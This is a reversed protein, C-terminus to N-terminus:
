RGAGPREDSGSRLLERVPLWGTAMRGTVSGVHFRALSAAVGRVRGRDSADVQGGEIVVALRVLNVAAVVAQGPVSFDVDLVAVDEDPLPVGHVALCELLQEVGDIRSLWHQQARTPVAAIGAQPSALDHDIDALGNDPRTFMDISRFTLSPIPILLDTRTRGQGDPSGTIKRAKPPCQRASLPPGDSPGGIFFSCFTPRATTPMMTSIIMPIELQPPFAVGVALVDGIALAVATEAAETADSAAEGVKVAM